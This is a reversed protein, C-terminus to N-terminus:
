FLYIINESNDGCVSSNALLVVFIKNKSPFGFGSINFLLFLYLINESTGGSNFLQLSLIDAGDYLNDLLFVFHVKNKSYFCFNSM